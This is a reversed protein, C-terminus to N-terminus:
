SCKRFAESLAACASCVRKPSSSVTHNTPDFLRARKDSCADCFVEGCVRCHHRRTFVTFNVLCHWCSPAAVDPKWQEKPLLQPADMTAATAM